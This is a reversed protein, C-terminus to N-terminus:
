TPSHSRRMGRRRSARWPSAHITRSSTAILGHGVADLLHEVRQLALAGACPPGGHEHAEGAAIQPASSLLIAGLCVYLYLSLGAYAKLEHALRTRISDAHRHSEM